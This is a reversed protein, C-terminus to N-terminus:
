VTGAKEKEAKESAIKRMAADKNNLLMRWTTECDKDSFRIVYEMCVPGSGRWDGRYFMVTWRVVRVGYVWCYAMGQRMYMWEELFEDGTRVKKETCKTEDLLEEAEGRENLFETVGLGDCNVAIEDLIEEGPQWHSRALKGMSFAFEEWMIGLAMRWPMTEEDREWPKLVGISEAIYALIDSQHAGPYRSPPHPPRTVPTRSYLDEWELEIVSESLLVPM